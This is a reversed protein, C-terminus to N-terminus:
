AAAAQAGALVQGAVRDTAGATGGLLRRTLQARRFFLPADHEWTAGIGGHVSINMRTSFELAKGAVSRASSAALPFEDPAAEAAWGAYLLLSRANDLRRLIEVIGHKMAQYSGIARGFTFREKAYEVSMDLVTEVTGVAEAALLAQALHWANAADDASVELASAGGLGSVHGLRRTSDYRTVDEVSAGEIVSVSGGEGVVVFVDAGPADVVWFAQDGGAPVRAEGQEADWTWEDVLDTPPMALVAAARQEGTAVPEALEHGAKDLLWSATLHGLLPVSALARGTEQLVLMADFPGLGAGGREDSVLLGTWGAESATGWLDPLPKAEEELADRAAELHNTGRLAQRAADRLFEQEDSLQLNM